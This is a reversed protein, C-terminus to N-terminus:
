RCSLENEGRLSPILIGEVPNDPPITLAQQVLDLGPHPPIQPRSHRRVVNQLLREDAGELDDLLEAPLSLLGEVAPQPRDGLVDDPLGGVPLSEPVQLDLIVDRGPAPWTRGRLGWFM